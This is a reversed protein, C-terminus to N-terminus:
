AGEREDAGFSGATAARARYGVPVQKAKIWALLDARTTVVNRTTLAYLAPHNGRQQDRKLTPVGVGCIEAVGEPWVIIEPVASAAASNITAM